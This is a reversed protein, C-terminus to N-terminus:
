YQIRGDIIRRKILSAGIEGRLITRAGYKPGCLIQRYMENEIRQLKEIDTETMSIMNVGHLILRYQLM